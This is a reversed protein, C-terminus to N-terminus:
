GQHLGFGMNVSFGPMQQTLEPHQSFALIKPNKHIEAIIKLFSILSMDALANTHYNKDLLIEQTDIDELISDKTFKWVLLFADGMNKNPSGMFQNVKSHVIKAIENVFIMIDQQLIQTTESFSRISCFGFICYKMKGPILPDIEGGGRKMSKTIIESGAEGFGLALLAGIRIFTKELIQTELAVNKEKKNKNATKSRLLEEIEEQVAAKVPNESIKNVKKIMNEIPGIILDYADKTFYISALTLVLSITLTMGIDLGAQTQTDFRMDFYAVAEHVHDDQHSEYSSTVIKVETM